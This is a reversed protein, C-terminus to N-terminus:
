KTPCFTKKKDISIHLSMELTKGDPKEVLELAGSSSIPFKTQKYGRTM